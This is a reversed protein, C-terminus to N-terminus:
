HRRKQARSAEIISVVTTVLLAAALILAGVNRANVQVGEKIQEYSASTVLVAFGFLCFFRLRQGIGTPYGDCDKDFDKWSLNMHILLAATGCVGVIGKILYFTQPDM